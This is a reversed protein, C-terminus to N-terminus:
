TATQAPQHPELCTNTLRPPTNTTSRTAHLPLNPPPMMRTHTQRRSLSLCLFALSLSLSLPPDKCLSQSILVCMAAPTAELRAFAENCSFFLEAVHVCLQIGHFSRSGFGGSVSGALACFSGSVRACFSGSCAALACACFSGSTADASTSATCRRPQM